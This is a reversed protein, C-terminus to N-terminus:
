THQLTISWAQLLRKDQILFIYSAALALLRFVSVLIAVEHSPM